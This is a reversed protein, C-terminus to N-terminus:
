KEPKTGARGALPSIGRRSLNDLRNRNAAGAARPQEFSCRSQRNPRFFLVTARYNCKANRKLHRAEFCEPGKRFPPKKLITERKYYPSRIITDRALFRLDTLERSCILHAVKSTAMAVATWLDSGRQPGKMPTKISRRVGFDRSSAFQATLPILNPFASRSLQLVAKDMITSRSLRSNSIESQNMSTSTECQSCRNRM